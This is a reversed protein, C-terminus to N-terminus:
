GAKTLWGRCDIASCPSRSDVEDDVLLEHIHDTDCPNQMGCRHVLSRLASVCASPTTLILAVHLKAICSFMKMEKTKEDQAKIVSTCAICSVLSSFVERAKRRTALWRKLSRIM